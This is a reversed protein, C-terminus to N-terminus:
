IREVFVLVMKLQSSICEEKEANFKSNQLKSKCLLAFIEGQEQFHHTGLDGRPQSLTFVTLGARPFCPQPTGCARSAEGELLPVGQAPTRSARSSSSSIHLSAERLIEPPLMLAVPKVWPFGIEQATPAQTSGPELNSSRRVGPGPHQTVAAQAEQTFITLCLGASLCRQSVPDGHLMVVSIGTLDKTSIPTMPQM